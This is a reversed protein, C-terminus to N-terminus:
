WFKWWPKKPELDTADATQEETADKALDDSKPMVDSWDAESSTPAVDPGKFVYAKEPASRPGGEPVKVVTAEPPSPLAPEVKVDNEDELNDAETEEFEDERGAFPRAVKRDLSLWGPMWSDCAWLEAPQLQETETFLGDFRVAHELIEDPMADSKMPTDPVSTRAYPGSMWNEATHGYMFVAGEGGRPRHYACGRCSGSAHLADFVEPDVKTWVFAMGEEAKALDGSMGDLKKRVGPEDPLFMLLRMHGDRVLGLRATPVHEQTGENVARHSRLDFSTGEGDLRALMEPDAYYQDQAVVSPVAGAEGSDFLAVNGDRDVAFWTTDM